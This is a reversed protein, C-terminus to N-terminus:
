GVSRLYARTGTTAEIMSIVERCRIEARAHQLFPGFGPDELFLPQEILEACMEAREVSSFFSDLVLQVRQWYHETGTYWKLVDTGGVHLMLTQYLEPQSGRLFREGGIELWAVM